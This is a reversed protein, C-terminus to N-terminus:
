NNYAARTYIPLNFPQIQASKTEIPSEFFQPTKIAFNHLKSLSTGLPRPLPSLPPM